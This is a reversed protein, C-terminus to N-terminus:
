EPKINAERALRAFKEVEARVYAAFEDPSGSARLEIAREAFRNVLEQSGWAKVVEAHLRVVVDRPTGAPALM